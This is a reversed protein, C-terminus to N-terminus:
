SESVPRPSGASGQLFPLASLLALLRKWLLTYTLTYTHTCARIARTSIYIHTYM